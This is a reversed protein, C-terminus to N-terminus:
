WHWCQLINVATYLNQQQTICPKTNFYQLAVAKNIEVLFVCNWSRHLVCCDKVVVFLLFCFGRRYKQWFCVPLLPRKKNPRLPSIAMSELNSVLSKPSIPRSKHLETLCLVTWNRKRIMLSNIHKNKTCTVPFYILKKFFFNIRLSHLLNIALSSPLGGLSLLLPHTNKTPSLGARGLNPIDRNCDCHFRRRNHYWWKKLLSCYRIASIHDRPKLGAAYHVAANMMRRGGANWRLYIATIITEQWYQLTWVLRCPLLWFYDNDRTLVIIRLCSSIATIM